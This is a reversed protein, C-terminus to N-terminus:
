SIQWYNRSLQKAYYAIPPSYFLPPTSLFCFNFFGCRLFKLAAYGNRLKSVEFGGYVSDIQHLVYCCLLSGSLYSTPSATRMVAFGYDSLWLALSFFYFLFGFLVTFTNPKKHLDNFFSFSCWKCCATARELCCFNRKYM